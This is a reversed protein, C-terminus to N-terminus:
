QFRLRRGAIGLTKKSSDPGQRPRPPAGGLLAVAAPADRASSPLNRSSAPTRSRATATDVPSSVRTWTASRPIRGGRAGSRGWTSSGQNNLGFHRLPGRRPVPLCSRPVGAPRAVAARFGREGREGSRATRAPVSSPARAFGAQGDVRSGGATGGTSFFPGGPLRGLPPGEAVEKGDPTAPPGPPSSPLRRSACGM